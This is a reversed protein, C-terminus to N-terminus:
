LAKINPIERFVSSIRQFLIDIRKKEIRQFFSRSLLVLFLSPSFDGKRLPRM